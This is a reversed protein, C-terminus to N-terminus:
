DRATRGRLSVHVGGLLAGGSGPVDGELILGSVAIGGQILGFYGVERVRRVVLLGDFLFGRCGDLLDLVVELITNFSRLPAAPNGDGDLSLRGILRAGVGGASGTVGVGASGAFGVGTPFSLWCGMCVMYVTVLKVGVM